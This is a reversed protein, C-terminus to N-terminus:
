RTTGFIRELMARSKRLDSSPKKVRDLLGAYADALATENRSRVLGIM